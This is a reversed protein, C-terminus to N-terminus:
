IRRLVIAGGTTTWLLVMHAQIGLWLPMQALPLVMHPRIKHLNVLCSEWGAGWFWDGRRCKSSQGSYDRLIGRIALPSSTAGHHSCSIVGGGFRNQRGLLAQFQVLLLNIAKKGRDLDALHMGEKAIGLLLLILVHIVRVRNKVLTLVLALTALPFKLTIRRLAWFVAATELDAEFWLEFTKRM